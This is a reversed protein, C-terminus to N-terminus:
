FSGWTLDVTVSANTSEGAAATTINLSSSKLDIASNQTTDVTGVTTVVETQITAKAGSAATIPAVSVSKVKSPELVKYTSTEIGTVHGNDRTIKTIVPIKIEASTSQTVDATEKATVTLDNSGNTITKHKLDVGLADSVSIVISNDSSGFEISGATSTTSANLSIVNGDGKALQYTTDIHEAEVYDWSVTGTILGTAADETGSAIALSGAPYTKTDTTVASSLIYTDGNSVSTLSSPNATTGKYTMANLNRKLEDFKAQLGLNAVGNTFSIATDTDGMVKIQPNITATKSNTDTDSVTVHFGTTGTDGNGNGGTVNSLKTDKAKITINKSTDEEITINDSAKLVVNGKATEGSKLSITATNNAVTDSLAFDSGTITIKANASDTKDTQTVTIGTGGVIDVKSSKSATTKQTLTNTLTVGGTTNETTAEFKDMGYDTSSNIQVWKGGSAVALINEAEAYYFGGTEAALSTSPLAAVNAVTYVGENVPVPKGTSDGIYLRHTDQTLYFTGNTAGGDKILTNLASQLGLKFAVNSNKNINAM